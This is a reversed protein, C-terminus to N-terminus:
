RYAFGIRFPLIRTEEEAGITVLWRGEVTLWVEGSVRFGAGGGAAVALEEDTPITVDQADVLVDEFSRRWYGGAGSAWLSVRSTSLPLFLRAEGSLFIISADGGSVEANSLDTGPLLAKAVKSADADFREISVAAGIEMWPGTRYAVGGAISVGDNWGDVFEAPARRIAVGGEAHVVARGASAPAAALLALAALVRIRASV